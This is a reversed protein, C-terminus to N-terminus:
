IRSEDKARVIEKGIKKKINEIGIVAGKKVVLAV